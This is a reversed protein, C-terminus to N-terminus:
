LAGGKRSPKKPWRKKLNELQRPTVKHGAANKNGRGGLAIRLRHIASLKQGKRRGM